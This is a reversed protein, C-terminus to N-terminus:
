LLSRWYLYASEGDIVNPIRGVEVFGLSVWLRRSLNREFVLTFLMADFGRRRAESLSHEALMRGFGRGRLEDVVIYGANAIHAAADPFAPRLFYSGAVRGRVRGVQVTAMGELWASRFTVLDAPPSRPFAGGVDVASAYAAFLAHEDDPSFESVVLHGPVSLM